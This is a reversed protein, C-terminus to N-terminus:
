ADKDEGGLIRRVLYVPRRKVEQFIYGVYMGILGMTIMLSGGVVLLVFITSSWGPTLSSQQGTVWFSLVYVAELLALLLFLGGVSIGIYLPVLSFSFVADSALNLMKRLSYKSRGGLRQPPQYPLIVSRYGMWAVMGRIFRHYEPMSNLADVAARSMLRFDAAGPQIQTDGIRNVLAYFGRATLRKFLSVKEEDVRQTLVIDYGSLGLRLMEGILDPPHQGDGDLTVVWDGKTQQLGATLAAQHGFNRSLEVVRIRRDAAALAELQKLTGDSSGDDVYYITFAHPLAELAACLRAHFPSLAEEENYLPIVLDVSLPSSSPTSDNM